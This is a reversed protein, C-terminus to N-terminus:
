RRFCASLPRASRGLALGNPPAGTGSIGLHDFGLQSPSGVLEQPSFGSPLPLSSYQQGQEPRWFDVRAGSLGTLLLYGDTTWGLLGTVDPPAPVAPHLLNGSDVDRLEITGRKTLVALLHGRPDIAIGSQTRHAPEVPYTVLPRQQALSWLALKDDSTGLILQDANGPRLGLEVNPRSRTSSATDPGVRVPKDPQVQSAAGWQYLWTGGGVVAFLRADDSQVIVDVTSSAGPPAPLDYDATRRLDPLSWQTMHSSGDADNRYYTWAATDVFLGRPAGAPVPTPVTTVDHGADRSLVRLQNDSLSVVWRGDVSVETDDSYSGGRWATQGALQVVSQERASLVAAQGASDPTIVALLPDPCLQGCGALGDDGRSAPVTISYASGSTVNTIVRSSYGEDGARFGTVVYHRDSTLTAFLCGASDQLPMTRAVAGTDAAYM